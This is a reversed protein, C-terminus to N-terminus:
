RFTLDITLIELGTLLAFDFDDYTQCINLHKLHKCLSLSEINVFESNILRISELNELNSLDPFILAKSNCYSNIFSIEKLNSLEDIDEMNDIAISEASFQELNPFQTFPFYVLKFATNDIIDEIINLSKINPLLPLELLNFSSLSITISELNIIDSLSKTDKVEIGRLNISKLNKIEKFESLNRFFALNFDFEVLNVESEFKDFKSHIDSLDLAELNLIQSIDDENPEWDLANRYAIKLYAQTKKSLSNFWDLLNTEM